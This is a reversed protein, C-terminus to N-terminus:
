EEVGEDLEVIWMGVRFLVLGLSVVVVGFLAPRHVTDLRRVFVDVGMGIVLLAVVQMFRGMV